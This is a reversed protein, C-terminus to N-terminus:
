EFINPVFFDLVPGDKALMGNELGESTYNTTLTEGLQKLYTEAIMSVLYDERVLKEKYKIM